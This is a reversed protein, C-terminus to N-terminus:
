RAGTVDPLPSGPGPPVLLLALVLFLLAAVTILERDFM